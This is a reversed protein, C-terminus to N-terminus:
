HRTYIFIYCHVRNTLFVMIYVELDQTETMIGPGVLCTLQLM